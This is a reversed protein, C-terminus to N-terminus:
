LNDYQITHLKQARNLQQRRQATVLYDTVHQFHPFFRRISTSHSALSLSLSRALRHHNLRHEYLLWRDHRSGCHCCLLVLLSAFSANWSRVPFFGCFEDFAVSCESNQRHECFQLRLLVHCVLAINQWPQYICQRLPFFFANWEASLLFPRFFPLVARLLFPEETDELRVFHVRLGGCIGAYQNVNIQM